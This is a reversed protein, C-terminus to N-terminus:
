HQHSVPLRQQFSSSVAPGGQAGVFSVHHKRGRLYKMWAASRRWGRNRASSTLSCPGLKYSSPQPDSGARKRCLVTATLYFEGFTGRGTPPATMIPFVM